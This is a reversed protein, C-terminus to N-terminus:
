YDQVSLAGWFFTTKDGSPLEMGCAEDTTITISDPNTPKYCGPEYTYLGFCTTKRHATSDDAVNCGSLALSAAGVILLLLNRFKM